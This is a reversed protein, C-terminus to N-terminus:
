RKLAIASLPPPHPAVIGVSQYAGHTDNIIQPWNTGFGLGFGLGAREGLEVAQLILLFGPLSRCFFGRSLAPFHRGPISSACRAFLPASTFGGGRYVGAPDWGPRPYEGWVGLFKGGVKEHKFRQVLYVYFLLM